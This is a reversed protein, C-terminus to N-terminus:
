GDLLYELLRIYNLIRNASPSSTGRMLAVIVELAEHPHRAGRRLWRAWRPVVLAGAVPAVFPPSVHAVYAVAGLAVAEGVEVCGGRGGCTGRLRLWTRGM